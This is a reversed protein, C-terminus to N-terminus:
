STTRDISKKILGAAIFKEINRPKAKSFIDSLKISFIHDSANLNKYLVYDREKPDDQKFHYNKCSEPNELALKKPSERHTTIIFLTNKQPFLSNRITWYSGYEGSAADLRQFLEDFIALCHNDTERITKITNQMTNIESRLGSADEGINDQNNLSICIKAFPTASCEEAPFICLSQALIILAVKRLFTSKGGETSGSITAIQPEAKGGLKMTNPIIDEMNNGNALLLPNWANKIRLYPSNSKKFKPICFTLNKDKYYNLLNNLTLNMDITGVAELPLEFYKKLSLMTLYGTPISSYWVRNWLKSAFGLTKYETEHPNYGNLTKFLSNYDQLDEQSTLDRKIATKVDLYTSLELNESLEPYRDIINKLNKMEHILIVLSQLAINQQNIANTTDILSQKPRFILLNYIQHLQPILIAFMKTFALPLLFMPMSSLTPILTGWQIATLTALPIQHTICYAIVTSLITFTGKYDYLFNTEGKSNYGLYFCLSNTIAGIAAPIVLPTANSLTCQALLNSAAEKVLAFNQTTQAWNASLLGSGIYMGMSTNAITATSLIIATEPSKNAADITSKSLITNLGPPICPTKEALERTTTKNWFTLVDSEIKKIRQMTNTLEKAVAQNEQLFLLITRKKNLEKLNNTPTGITKLIAMKGLNTLYFPSGDQRYLLFHILRQESKYSLRNHTKEVPGCTIYLDDAFASAPIITQPRRNLQADNSIYMDLISSQVDFEKKLNSRLTGINAKNFIKQIKEEEEPTQADFMSTHYRNQESELFNINLEEQRLYQEKITVLTDSRMSLLVNNNM